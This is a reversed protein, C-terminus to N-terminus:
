LLTIGFSLRASLSQFFQLLIYLNLNILSSFNYTIFRILRLHKLAQYHLYDVHRHFHLKRDIMVGIDKVCDIRVILLDGVFYNFHISKSKRTFSIMNTKFINIKM